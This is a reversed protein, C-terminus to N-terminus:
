LDLDSMAPITIFGSSWSDVRLPNRVPCLRIPEKLKGLFQRPSRVEPCPNSLPQMHKSGAKLGTEKPSSQAHPTLRIIGRCYSNLWSGLTNVSILHARTKVPSEVRVEVQTQSIGLGFQCSDKWLILSPHCFM